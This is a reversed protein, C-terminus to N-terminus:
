GEAQVQWVPNEFDYWYIFTKVPKGTTNMDILLSKKDTRRPEQDYTKCDVPAQAKEEPNKTGTRSTDHWNRSAQVTEEPENYM